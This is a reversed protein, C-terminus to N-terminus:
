RVDKPALRSRCADDLLEFVRQLERASLPGQNRRQLDDLALRLDSDGGGQALLRARENFLAMLSRDLQTLQRRLDPKM